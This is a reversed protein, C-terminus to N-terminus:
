ASIRSDRTKDVYMAKLLNIRTIHNCYRNYHVHANRRICQLAAPDEILDMLKATLEAMRDYAHEKNIEQYWHGSIEAGALRGGYNILIKGKKCVQDMAWAFEIRGDLIYGVADQTLDRTCMYDANHSIKFHPSYGSKHIQEVIQLFPQPPDLLVFLIKERKKPTCTALVANAAQICEAFTVVDSCHIIIPFLLMHRAKPKAFQQEHSVQFM